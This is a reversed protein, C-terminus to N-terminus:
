KHNLKKKLNKRIKIRKIFSAYDIILKGVLHDIEHQIARSFLDDAWFAVDKNFEDMAEVFIRKARKVEVSIGPLSLCGEELVASGKKESIKPNILKYLGKGVNIIIIQKNIGVQPAALGIGGHTYMIDVMKDLIRREEEGVKKVPLSKNRLVKDGYTHIKLETEKM